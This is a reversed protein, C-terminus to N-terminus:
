ELRRLFAELEAPLPVGVDNQMVRRIRLKELAPQRPHVVQLPEKELIIM